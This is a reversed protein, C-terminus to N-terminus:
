RILRIGDAELTIKRAKYLAGLTLKFVKKSIGLLAYIEEPRSKDTLPLFGRRKLLGLVKEAVADVKAYGPASLAINLKGDPRPAKM